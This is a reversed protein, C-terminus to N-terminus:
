LIEFDKLWEKEQESLSNYDILKGEYGMKVFSYIKGDKKYCSNELRVGFYDPNYLGPEISFCMGDQLETHAIESKNLAPPAEHVNIGLGHGLGHGFSFGEIKDDLISHALADYEYGTKFNRNLANLFAKLVTTYVRKQLKSPQGKVFVRTIDTALGSEYYAGCDILVLSGDKLIVDKSNKSYHALASNKDIAVISNFSLSKAGYKIFEDRLRKAIDYESLNENSEIYDRIAQVAMDTREFAKKYAEIEQQSKIAKMHKVPSLNHIPEKILAYDHANISAKDVLLEGDFNRLFEDSTKSNEFLVQKDSDIYLKAWIKSSCDRSFDRLGTIYSAEELNSIFWPKEPKYDIPKFARELPQNHPETYNNIPDIDLLKINYGNFGELRQQSVKKSVIGLVKDEDILKKIEDDQKQGLQLKIVNVGEKVENDAQTHYRGDVFLYINDETLLADGTSGSFGTLTYRANESLASYEVLYENTSNVLLYNIGLDKLLNNM